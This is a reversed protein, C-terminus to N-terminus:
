FYIDDFRKLPESIYRTDKSIASNNAGAYYRNYTSKDLNEDILSLESPHIYIRYGLVQKDGGNLHHYKTNMADRIFLRLQRKELYFTTDLMNKSGMGDSPYYMDIKIKKEGDIKKFDKTHTFVFHSANFDCTTYCYLTMTATEYAYENVINMLDNPLCM